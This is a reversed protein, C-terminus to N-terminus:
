QQMLCLEDVKFDFAGDNDEKQQVVVTLLHKPM